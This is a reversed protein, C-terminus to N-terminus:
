KGVGREALYDELGVLFEDAETQWKSKRYVDNRVKGGSIYARKKSEACADCFLRDPPPEMDFHNGYPAESDADPKVFKGCYYCRLDYYWRKGM